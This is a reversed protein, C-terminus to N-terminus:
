LKRMFVIRDPKFGMEWDQWAYVVEPEGFGRGAIQAVLEEQEAAAERPRFFGGLSLVVGSALRLSDLISRETEVDIGFSLSPFAIISRSTVYEHARNPYFDSVPSMRARITPDVEEELRGLLRTMMAAHASAAEVGISRMGQLAVLMSLQGIGAGIEVLRDVSGRHQLVFRAIAKDKPALGITRTLSRNHDVLFRLRYWQYLTEGQAQYEADLFSAIARDARNELGVDYLNSM